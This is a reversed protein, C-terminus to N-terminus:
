SWICGWLMLLLGCWLCCWWLCWWCRMSCCCGGDGIGDSAVGAGVHDVDGGGCCYVVLCCWLWGGGDIGDHFGGVADEADVVLVMVVTVLLSIVLTM